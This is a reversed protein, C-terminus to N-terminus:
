PIVSLARPMIRGDFTLQQLSRDDVNVLWSNLQNGINSMFAVTSDDPTWVPSWAGQSKLETLQRWEQTDADVMWLNSNLRNLDFDASEDEMNERRIVLIRHGYSTWTPFSDFVKDPSLQWQKDTQVDLVWLPGYNNFQGVIQDWIYAIFRGDRSWAILDPTVGPKPSPALVERLLNGTANILKLRDGQIITYAITTGDPSVAADTVTEGEPTIRRSEGTEINLIELHDGMLLWQNSDPFWGRFWGGQAEGVVKGDKVTTIIVQSVGETNCLHLALKHQDPSPRLDCLEGPGVYDKAIYVPKFTTGKATGTLPGVIISPAVPTSRPAPTFIVIPKAPPTLYYPCPTLNIPYPPIPYRACIAADAPNPIPTGSKPPVPPSTPEKIPSQFVASGPTVNSQRERLNLVLVVVLMGLLLLGALGGVFRLIKKM